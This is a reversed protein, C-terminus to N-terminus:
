LRECEYFAESDIERLGATSMFEELGARYFAMVGIKEM